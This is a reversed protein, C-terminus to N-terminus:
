LPPWRGRAAPLSRGYVRRGLIHVRRYRPNANVVPYVVVHARHSRQPETPTDDM